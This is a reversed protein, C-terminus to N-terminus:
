TSYKQLRYTSVAMLHEARAVVVGFEETMDLESPLMNNPLKWDFCHVLQAVIFRVMILGLQMGPCGRRGSGFPLLQFHQGRLDISSGVFREPNFKEPDTWANPDRGLAFTNVIIRADKPIHYGDVTCDELSYHPILLPAVPHLRFTEKVVMDLYELSELDSEEVMRDLSVVEELEKQVKKMVQPNKLLESLIWEVTSAATDMSAALMDLMIAKVHRRDFQFETDRSQMISMMTDVIDKTRGQDGDRVHDDIVKEFFNDFVKSLAKMRKTLGQLDLVGLFPFYDGLNPMASLKIAEQIVVKFGREDIDKDEYKKGFVMRCSMEATLFSVKASLDVSVCELAAHKLWEVLLGLEERRMPQFSSIKISSLLELTCLKRMNRWYPGYTGFVINRQDWSLYKSAQHPPRGAFVLDYTKLFQEAAQPSSVIIHPVFGFQVYMIPGHKQAIRHLDQHPNKGIMHLHGLIPVGRPGPPLKKKKTSGHLFSLVAVVIITYWIFSSSLM